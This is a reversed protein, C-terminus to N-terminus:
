QLMNLFDKKLEEKTFIKKPHFILSKVVLKTDKKFELLTNYFLRKYKNRLVATKFYKKGLVIGFKGSGGLPQPTLVFFGYTTHVKKGNKFLAGDSMEKSTFKEKKPLM